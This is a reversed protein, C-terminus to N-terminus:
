TGDVLWLTVVDMGANSEQMRPNCGFAVNSRKGCELIVDLNTNSRNGCGLIVGSDVNLRNGCGLIVGLHPSKKM